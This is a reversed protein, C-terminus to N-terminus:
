YRVKRGGAGEGGNSFEVKVHQARAWDVADRGLKPCTNLILHRVGAGVLAKVGVGTIYSESMDLVRLKPLKKAIFQACDDGAAIVSRLALRELDTLRPHQLLESLCMDTMCSRSLVSLSKLKHDALSTTTELSPDDDYTSRDTMLSFLANSGTCLEIDLEELMPLRHTAEPNSAKATLGLKEIKTPLRVNGIDLATGQLVLTRLHQLPRLDLPGGFRTDANADHYILSTLNPLKAPVQLLFPPLQLTRRYGEVHIDLSQLSHHIDTLEPIQRTHVCHFAQLQPLASLLRQITSPSLETGHGIHLQKLSTAKGLTTVFDEGQFRTSLLTLSQVECNKVLAVLVKELDYLNNLTAATLKRHAINIARSIFATRVKRKAYTLDLHRWLSSCARIFRAWEKSVRCAGVREGFTLYTLVLEAVEPPFRTLPDVSKPPSLKTQLETHAKRLLEYEQGFHKIAALGCSYIELAVDDKGMKQLVKGARLYGTADERHIQIAKKADQLAKPLDNLKEYCAARNDHLQLSPARGIAQNFLQLAKDYEQRKYAARADRQLREQIANM